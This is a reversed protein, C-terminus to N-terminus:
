NQWPGSLAASARSWVFRTGIEPEPVQTVEAHCSLSGASGFPGQRGASVLMLEPKSHLM